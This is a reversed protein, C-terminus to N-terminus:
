LLAPIKQRTYKPVEFYSIHTIYVDETEGLKRGVLDYDSEDVSMPDGGATGTGSMLARLAPSSELVERFALVGDANGLLDSLLHVQGVCPTTARPSDDPGGARAALQIYM